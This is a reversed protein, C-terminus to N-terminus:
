AITPAAALNVGVGVIVADSQAELLIGALKAGGLLVDNPWKFRLGECHPRLAEIVALGAVFALTRAPPDDQGIWVLTSGMFNGAGNEWARGQRGRGGTQRDALLWFGESLAEGARVRAALDANTSGTEYVTQILRQPVASRRRWGCAPRALHDAP